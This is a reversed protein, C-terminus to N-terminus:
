ITKGTKTQREDELQQNLDDSEFKRKWYHQLRETMREWSAEDSIEKEAIMADRAREAIASASGGQSIPIVLVLQDDTDMAVYIPYIGDGGDTPLKAHTFGCDGFEIQGSDVMVEGIPAGDSKLNIDIM